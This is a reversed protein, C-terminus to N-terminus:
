LRCSGGSCWWPWLCDSNSCCEHCDRDSCCREWWECHSDQCCVQCTNDGCCEGRSSPCDDDNCCERCAGGCCSQGATCDGDSCCESCAGGCCSQGAGCHSADCCGQCTQDCCHGSGCQDDRCCDHCQRDTCCFGTGGCDGDACCAQCTGDACCAQGDACSGGTSGCVCSGAVCSEGSACAGGCRGCHRADTDLNVCGTPACCTSERAGACSATGGCACSGGGCTEGAHCVTGCAGCNSPDTELDACGCSEGGAETVETCWLAGSCSTGVAGCYCRGESCINGAPRAGVTCDTECGGCHIPDECVNVCGAGPCCQWCPDSPCTAPDPGEDCLCEGRGCPGTPECTEGPRCTHDCQGCSDPATLDRCGGPCCYDTVGGGCPPGGECQCVGEVCATGERWCPPAVCRHRCGGCHDLSSTYDILGWEGSVPDVGCGQLGTADHLENVQHDCDEDAGGADCVEEAWPHIESNTDNCDVGSGFLDSDGDVVSLCDVDFVCDQAVGDGCRDPADPYARPDTDDCDTGGPPIRHGDGDADDATCPLDAGNCDQDVTDGCIEPFGAGVGSDCDNCDETASLGDQDIDDECGEDIRGDCNDDEGDDCGPCDDPADPDAGCGEYAFPNISADSDDCDGGGCGDYDPHPAFFGDGDSDCPVDGYCSPIEERCNDDVGNGCVELAGPSVLPDADDCDVDGPYGDGDEDGCGSDVGDCDEDYCNGCIEDALPNILEPAPPEPCGEAVPDSEDPNCDSRGGALAGTCGTTCSFGASARAACWRDLDDAFTDGDRDVDAALVALGVDDDVTPGSVAYCTTSALVFGGGEAVLHVMYLGPGPVEVVLRLPRSADAGVYGSDGRNVPAEIPEFVMIEGALSEHKVSVTLRSIASEARAEILIADPSPGQQCGVVLAAAHVAALTWWWKSCARPRLVV